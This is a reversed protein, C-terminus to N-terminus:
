RLGWVGARQVGEVLADVNGLWAGLLEKKEASTRVLKGGEPAPIGRANNEAETDVNRRERDVELNRRERESELSRRERESEISRRERDMEISRRERDTEVSKREVQISSSSKKLRHGQEAGKTSEVQSKRLADSSAPSRRLADPSRRLEDSGAQNKRLGDSSAQSKLMEVQTKKEGNLQSKRLGEAQSQSKRLGEVGVSKRLEEKGPGPTRMGGPLVAKKARIPTSPAPSAVNENRAATPSSTPEVPTTPTSSTPTSVNRPGTKALVPRPLVESTRPRHRQKVGLDVIPKPTKPTSIESAKPPSSEPTKKLASDPASAKVPSGTTLPPDAESTKSQPAAAAAFVDDVKASPKTKRPSTPTYDVEGKLLSLGVSTAGTSGKDGVIPFLDLKPFPPAGLNSKSSKKARPTDDIKRRRPTADSPKSPSEPLPVLCEQSVPLTISPTQPRSDIPQSPDSTSTSSVTSSSYSLSPIVMAARTKSFGDAANSHSTSNTAVSSQSATSARSVSRLESSNSFTSDGSVTRSLPTPRTRSEKAPTQNTRPRRPTQPVRPKSPTSTSSPKSAPSLNVAPKGTIALVEEDQLYFYLFELCKMRVHQGTVKKLTRVVVELGNCEEFIRLAAPSDVLLCLLTDIVSCALPSLSAALSADTNPTNAGSSITTDPDDPNTSAHRLATLLELLTQISLKRGMYAKSRPHILAMGQLASLALGISDAATSSTSGKSRLEDFARQAASTSVVGSSLIRSVINTEFANQLSLFLPLQNSWPRDPSHGVCVDALIAHLQELAALQTAKSSRSSLDDLINALVQAGDHM